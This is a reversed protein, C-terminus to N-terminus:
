FDQEVTHTETRIVGKDLLMNRLIKEGLTGLLMSLFGQEKAIKERAHTIGKTSLGSYLLKM